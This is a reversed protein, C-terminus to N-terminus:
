FNFSVDVAPRIRGEAVVDTPGGEYEVTDEVVLVQADLRPIVTIWRRIRLECGAGIGPAPWATNSRLAVRGDLGPAELLTSTFVVGVAPRVFPVARVRDRERPTGVDIGLRFGLDVAFYDRFGDLTDAPVALGPFYEGADVLGHRAHDAEITFAVLEGTPVDLVLRELLGAGFGSGNGGVLFSAGIGAALSVKRPKTEGVVRPGSWEAAATSALLLWM